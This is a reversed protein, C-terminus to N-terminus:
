ATRPCPNRQVEMQSALDLVCTYLAFSRLQRVLAGAESLVGSLRRLFYRRPPVPGYVGVALRPVDVGESVMRVAVM